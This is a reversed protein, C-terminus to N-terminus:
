PVELTIWQGLLISVVLNAFHIDLFGLRGFYDMSGSPNFSLFIVIFSVVFALKWLLGNVWFSQFVFRISMKRESTTRGFYDM